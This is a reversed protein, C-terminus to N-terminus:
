KALSSFEYRLSWKEERGPDISLSIYDEPSLVTKISWYLIKSLPKDGTIRVAAGTKRNVVRFEHDSASDSFGTIESMVTERDAIPRAYSLENGQILGPEVLARPTKPVFNFGVAFDPGIPQGDMVMFNHNYVDTEITKKGTNKLTHEILMEAKGPVLRITKVYRYAYGSSPDRLTHEFTVADKKASTKWKGTDVIEYTRFRQFAPEQPKRLTGVGIRIFTSGVAADKYGLAGSPSFFEEVPGTIADHLKPDYKAFWVGFYSHGAAELSAIVGSWDFRTGRYYGDKADPLYLKAKVKGNDIFVSPPEAAQIAAVIALSCFLSRIV